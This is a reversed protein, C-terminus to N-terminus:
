RGQGRGDHGVLKGRTDIVMDSVGAEVGRIGVIRRRLIIHLLAAQEGAFIVFEALLRGLSANLLAKMVLTEAIALDYLPSSSM